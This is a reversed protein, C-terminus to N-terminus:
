VVASVDHETIYPNDDHGAVRGILQSGLDFLRAPTPHEEQAVKNLLKKELNLQVHPDCLDALVEIGAVKLRQALLSKLDAPTWEITMTRLSVGSNQLLVHLQQPAIIKLHIGLHALKYTLALLPKLTYAARHADESARSSIDVLIYVRPHIHPRAHALLAMLEYDDLSNDFTLGTMLDKLTDLMLGGSGSVILGAQQLRVFLPQGTGVYRGLLTAFSAQIHPPQQVFTNPLNVWYHLYTHTVARALDHLPTHARLINPYYVPFAARTKLCEYAALLALASKGVGAEGFVLCPEPDLVARLPALPVRTGLLMDDLEAPATSFPNLERPLRGEHVLVRMGAAVEPPAVFCPPGGPQVQPWPKLIARWQRKIEEDPLVLNLDVMINSISQQWEADALETYGWHLCAEQQDLWKQSVEDPRPLEDSDDQRRLEVVGQLESPAKQWSDNLMENFESDRWPSDKDPDARWRMYLSAAEAWKKDALGKELVALNKTVEDRHATRIKKEEEQKDARQRGEAALQNLQQVVFGALGGVFAALLGASGIQRWIYRQRADNKSEVDIEWERGNIPTLLSGNSDYIQAQLRITDLRIPRIYVLVPSSRADQSPTLTFQPYVPLGAESTFKANGTPSDLVLTYTPPDDLPLVAAPDYLLWIAVPVTSDDEDLHILGKDPPSIILLLDLSRARDQIPERVAEFAASQVDDILFNAQYFSVVFFLIAPVILWVGLLPLANLMMGAAKLISRIYNGIAGLIRWIYKPVADQVNAM